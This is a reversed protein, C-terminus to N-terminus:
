IKVLSYKRNFENEDIICAGEHEVEYEGQNDPIAYYKRGHYSFSQVSISWSSTSGNSYKGYADHSDIKLM